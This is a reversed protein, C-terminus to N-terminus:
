RSSLCSNKCAGPSPSPCLLGPTSRDMPDCLAPCSQAVSCCYIVGRTGLAADAIDSGDRQGTPSFDRRHDRARPRVRDLCLRRGVPSGRCHRPLAQKQAQEPQHIAPGGSGQPQLASNGAESSTTLPPFPLPGQRQDSWGVRSM